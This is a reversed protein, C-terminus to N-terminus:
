FKSLKRAETMARLNHDQLQVDVVGHDQAFDCILDALSKPKKDYIVLESDCRVHFHMSEKAATASRTLAETFAGTNFGFLEQASLRIPSDSTNVLYVSLENDVWIQVSPNNGLAPGGVLLRALM